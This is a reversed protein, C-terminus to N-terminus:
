RHATKSQRSAMAVSIVVLASGAFQMPVLAEDFLIWSMFLAVVPVLFFLSAVSSTDGKRILYMLLGVAGISLVFILWAMSLIVQNSWAINGEEFLFACAGTLIAAGAFQATTSVWLNLSAVNRKQYVAGLSIAMTGIIAAALTELNIGPLADQFDFDPFLVLGVGFLAALFYGIKRLSIREGLLAFAFVATFFPQLAVVLSSIGAAMGRDIAYFVGGLYLAQILCGIVMSHLIQRLNFGDRPIFWLVFPLLILFTIAFRIALFTFPEADATGYKAGVFGTAWLLVFVM